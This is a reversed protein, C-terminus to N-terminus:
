QCYASLYSVKSQKFSNSLAMDNCSEVVQLSFSHILLKLLGSVTELYNDDTSHFFRDSNLLIKLM